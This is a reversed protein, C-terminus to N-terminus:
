RSRRALSMWDVSAIADVIALDLTARQPAVADPACAPAMALVPRGTLKEIWRRNTSVSVDDSQPDYRNMVVGAVSAGADRLLRVTMATHNITGLGSRAVVVVPYNLALALDLVTFTGDLPVLLGGVGEVLM